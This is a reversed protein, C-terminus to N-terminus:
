VGSKTECSKLSALQMRTGPVGARRAPSSHNELFDGHPTRVPMFNGAWYRLWSGWGTTDNGLPMSLVAPPQLFHKYRRRRIWSQRDSRLGDSSTKYRGDQGDGRLV